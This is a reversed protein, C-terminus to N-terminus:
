RGAPPQDSSTVYATWWLDRLMIAGAALRQVAFAHHMPNRNQRGFPEVADLEYLRVVLSNSHRLYDVIAPRLEPLVAPPLNVAPRVQDLTVRAGVFQSEFRSHFTRDTTFGRPNEGVWGNHHITTHHPNSGDAVYHGLIGADNIIRQEIWGRVEPDDTARWERFAVRMRQTLELIRWPLFGLQDGRMGAERLVDSFAHRNRAELAGAPMPEFNIYHDPAQGTNMAPDIGSEARDRWRDPEPNLYSLQAAARRFFEPMEAPLADAAARGVMLHGHEGWLAADAAPPGGVAFRGPLLLLLTACAATILRM